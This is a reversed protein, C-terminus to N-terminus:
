SYTNQIEFLPAVGDPGLQNLSGIQVHGNERGEGPFCDLAPYSLSTSGSATTRVFNVRVDNVLTARGYPARWHDFVPQPGQRNEPFLGLPSGPEESFSETITGNDYVYRAFLNDKPGLTYDWRTNLYDENGPQNGVRM